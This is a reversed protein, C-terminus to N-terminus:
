IPMEWGAEVRSHIWYGRGPVFSDDQDMSNWTKSSAEYWQIVDVDVGFELNNLGETRNHNTLSPYGV